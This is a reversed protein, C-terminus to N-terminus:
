KTRFFEIRRNRQKGEPTTNPTLPKEPGFGRTKIRAGDIGKAVLYAKVADARRQSLKVNAAKRGSNDTHGQIEVEIEPNLALTNYAKELIGESAPNIEASGSAFVIGDLVIAQGVEVKLEEKKPVDDSPDVPNTGNSVETGDAISGGDTDTKLPNSKYRAVEDGDNLGDGDTDPKLADSTYNTIEDGDALGDGDTDSKLPDSKYKGVEDGDTLRDGDSDSKNPDTSRKNVEEGDGLGDGDSDVKLPSTKFRNVEDGDSLGDGDSDAKKPDTGLEREEKNTLGDGDADAKTNSQATLGILFSWYADKSNSTIASGTSPNLDGEQLRELKDSFSHNYGGSVEFLIEDSLRAQVGLGAPIFGTWEAVEDPDDATQTLRTRASLHLIGAGAYLYPNWSEMSLPSFVFRYDIPILRTKYESNGLHAIGVGFEGQLHSILGYRLFARAQLKAVQTSYDNKGVTVGIGVGGGLGESEFQAPASSLFIAILCLAAIIHAPRTM